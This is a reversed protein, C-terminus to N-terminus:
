VAARAEEFVGPQVLEAGDGANELEILYSALLAAMEDVDRTRNV